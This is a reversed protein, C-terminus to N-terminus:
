IFFILVAVRGVASGCFEIQRSRGDHECQERNRIDPMRLTDNATRLFAGPFAVPDGTRHATHTPPATPAPTPPAIPATL